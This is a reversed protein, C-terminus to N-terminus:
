VWAPENLIEQEALSRFSYYPVLGWSNRPDIREEIRERVMTAVDHLMEPQSAEDSLLARFFIAPEDSWNIGVTYRLRVVGPGLQREVGAIAAALQEPQAVGRPVYM